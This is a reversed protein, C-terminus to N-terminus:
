AQDELMKMVADNKLVSEVYVRVRASDADPYRELLASVQTEVLSPDATIQEQEAIKNLILQLRARKQAAPEWEKKLDEKTKNIHKLYDDLHLNARQLDENMQALMQEIESDILVQPLEFESKEIIEDTIKSRHASTVEREKEIAMGEKLKVKFDTVNEFEGPQGLTKVLEDTLPPVLVDHDEELPQGSDDHAPGEHVTGDAHTHTEKEGSQAKAQLREYAAKRRLINEIQKEVEAETVEASEKAVNAEKAIQKFNPLKVEPLVAVIATFGLPNGAAIKTISIQPWGIADIALEKLAIPYIRAIAREAMDSIVAMEGLREIIVKEPVHGPRFGDIKLNKGLQSISQNREKELEAFPIEGTIKVQSNPQNEVTFQKIFDM